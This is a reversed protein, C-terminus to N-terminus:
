IHRKPLGPDRSRPRCIGKQTFLSLGHPQAHAGSNGDIKRCNESVSGDLLGSMTAKGGCGENPNINENSPRPENM